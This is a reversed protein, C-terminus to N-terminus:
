LIICCGKEPHDTQYETYTKLIKIDELRGHLLEIADSAGFNRPIYNSAPKADPGYPLYGLQQLMLADMESCFLSKESDKHYKNWGAISQILELPRREYSVGVWDWVLETARHTDQRFSSDGREDHAIRRLGVDGAYTAVAKELTHIQVQPLMGSFIQGASGTSEFCYQQEHEDELLLGAHSWKQPEHPIDTYTLGTIMKGPLDYSKFVLVGTVTLTKGAILARQEKIYWPDSSDETRSMGAVSSSILGGEMAAAREAHEQPRAIKSLDAKTLKPPLYSVKYLDIGSISRIDVSSSQGEDDSYSNSLDEEHAPIAIAASKKPFTGYSEEKSDMDGAQAHFSTLALSLLFSTLIKHM